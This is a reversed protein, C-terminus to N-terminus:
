AREIASIFNTIEENTAKGSEIKAIIGNLDKNGIGRQYNEFTNATFVLEEISLPVKVGPRMGKKTLLSSLFYLTRNKYKGSGYIELKKDIWNELYEEDGGWREDMKQGFVEPQVPEVPEDQSKFSLLDQNSLNGILDRKNIELLKKYIGDKIKRLTDEGPDVKGNLPVDMHGIVKSLPINYTLMIRVSLEITKDILKDDVKNPLGGVEINVAKWYELSNKSTGDGRATTSLNTEDRTLYASQASVVKGPNKIDDTEYGVFFQCGTGLRDLRNKATVVSPFANPNDDTHLILYTPKNYKDPNDKPNPINKNTYPLMIDAIFITQIGNIEFTPLILENEIKIENTPTPTSASTPKMTSTPAPKMETPKTTETATVTPSPTIEPTKTQTTENIVEAPKKTSNPVSTVETLINTSTIVAVPKGALEVVKSANAQPTKEGSLLAGMTAVAAGVKLIRKRKRNVERTKQIEEFNATQILRSRISSIILRFAHNEAPDSGVSFQYVDKLGQLIEDNTYEDSYKKTILKEYVDRAYQKGEPTLKQSRSQNITEEKVFSGLNLKPAKSNPDIKNKDFVEGFNKITSGTIDEFLGNVLPSRKTDVKVPNDYGGNETM